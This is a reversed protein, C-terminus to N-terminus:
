SAARVDTRRAQAPAAATRPPPPPAAGAALLQRPPAPARPQEHPLPVGREGQAGGGVWSLERLPRSPPPIQLLPPPPASRSENNALRYLPFLLVVYVVSLLGLVALVTQQAREGREPWSAGCPSPPLPARVKHAMNTFSDVLTTPVTTHLEFRGIIFGLLLILISSGIATISPMAELVLGPAGLLPPHTHPLGAM